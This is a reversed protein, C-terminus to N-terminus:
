LPATFLKLSYIRVVKLAKRPLWAVSTKRHTSATQGSKVTNWYIFLYIFFLKHGVSFWLGTAFWQCVVNSLVNNTKLHHYVRMIYMKYNWVTTEENSIISNKFM